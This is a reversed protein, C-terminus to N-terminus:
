QALQRQANQPTKKLANNRKKIENVLLEWYQFTYPTGIDKRMGTIVKQNDDWISEALDGWFNYVIEMDVLKMNALLGVGEFFNGLLRLSMQEHKGDYKSLYDAYDVYEMSCVDGIAEQIERAGISFWPSLKIISETKRITRQHRTDLMFYVASVVVSVSAVVVSITPIDLVLSM